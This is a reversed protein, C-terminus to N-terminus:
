TQFCRSAHEKEKVDKERSQRQQSAIKGAIKTSPGHIKSLRQKKEKKKPLMPNRIESTVDTLAKSPGKSQNNTEKKLKGAIYTGIANINEENKIQKLLEIVNTSTYENSKRKKENTTHDIKLVGVRWIQDLMCIFWIEFPKCFSHINRILCTNMFFNSFLASVELQPHAMWVRFIHRCPLGWTSFFQCTCSRCTTIHVTEKLFSVTKETDNGSDILTTIVKIGTADVNQGESNEGKNLTMFRVEFKTDYDVRRSCSEDKHRTATYKTAQHAQTRLIQGAYGNVFKLLEQIVPSLNADASRFVLLTEIEAAVQLKIEQLHKVDDLVKILQVLTTNNSVLREIAAHFSESRQTSRMGFIRHSWTYRSDWQEKKSALSSLWEVISKQQTKCTSILIQHFLCQIEM